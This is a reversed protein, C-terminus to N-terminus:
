FSHPLSGICLPPHLLLLLLVSLVAGMVPCCCCSLGRANGAAISLLLLWGLLLMTLTWYCGPLPAKCARVQYVNGDKRGLASNLLYDTYGFGDTLAVANPRLERIM